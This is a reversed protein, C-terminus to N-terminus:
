LLPFLNNPIDYPAYTQQTSGVFDELMVTVEDKTIFNGSVDGVIIHSILKNVEKKSYVGLNHRVLEKETENKFESLHNEKYLPTKYEPKPCEKIITNNNGFGTDVSDIISNEQCKYDVEEIVPNFGTDFTTTLNDSETYTIIRKEQTPIEKQLISKSHQTYSLQSNMNCM